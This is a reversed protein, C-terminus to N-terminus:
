FIVNSDRRSSSNVFYHILITNSGRVNLGKQMLITTSVCSLLCPNICLTDTWKEKNYLISPRLPFGPTWRLAPFLGAKKKRVHLVFLSPKDTTQILGAVKPWIRFMRQRIAKGENKDCGFGIVELLFFFVLSPYGTKGAPVMENM